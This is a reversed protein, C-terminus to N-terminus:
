EEVEIVGPFYPRALVLQGDVFNEEAVAFVRYDGAATPLARLKGRDAETTPDALVLLDGEDGTGKARARFNRDLTTLAQATAQEADDAGELLLYIAHDNQAEPIALGDYGLLHLFGERGRLDGDATYNKHGPQTNSQEAFVTANM